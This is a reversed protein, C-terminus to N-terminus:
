SLQLHIGQPSNYDKSYRERNLKLVAASSVRLQAERNGILYKGANLRAPGLSIIPHCFFTLLIGIFPHTCSPRAVMLQERTTALSASADTTPAANREQRTSRLTDNHQSDSFYLQSDKASRHSFVVDGGREL